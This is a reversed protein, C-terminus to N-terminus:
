CNDLGLIPCLDARVHTKQGCHPCQQSASPAQAFSHKYVTDGTRNSKNLHRALFQQTWSGCGSDCNYVIMTKGALMKVDNPSKRVRVFVRIYYDISLSLLPEIALGYRGASSAIAHLLLRLGGEHCAEGKLPLGGYQSYTKELYGHSAFIASDTCTVCLLGGDHLAQVAADLFPAATGYPDLDIVDFGPKDVFSYMYAIANGTHVTIKDGLKNHTVNLTISNTAKESMDNATVSTLFPIEQAYRLARLGTASLADLIRFSISPAKSDTDASSDISSVQAESDPPPINAHVTDTAGAVAVAAAVANGEEDTRRKKTPAGDPSNENAEHDQARSKQQKRKLKEVSRKHSKDAKAKKRAVCDEGYAKIALVSLDRNFQQIPNYFVSQRQTDEKSLKPDTSTPTGYPVLIYGLGEKITTYTTGRVNVNQGAQPTSEISATNEISTTASAM